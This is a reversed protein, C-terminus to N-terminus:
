RLCQNEIFLNVTPENNNFYLPTYMVVDRNIRSNGASRTEVNAMAQPLPDLAVRCTGTPGVVGVGDPEPDPETVSVAGTGTEGALPSWNAM